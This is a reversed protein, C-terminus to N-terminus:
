YFQIIGMMVWLLLSSKLRRSQELSFIILILKNQLSWYIFQQDHKLPEVRKQDLALFENHDAAESIKTRLASFFYKKKLLHSSIAINRLWCTAHVFTIAYIFPFISLFVSFRLAIQFIKQQEKICFYCM